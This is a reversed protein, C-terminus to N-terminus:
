QRSNDPLQDVNHTSVPPTAAAGQAKPTVAPVAHSPPPPRVKRSATASAADPVPTSPSATPPLSSPASSPSAASAVAESPPAPAPPAAASPVPPPNAPAVPPPAMSVSAAAAPSSAATRDSGRIMLTVGGIIAAVAVVGVVAITAVVGGSARSQAPPPTPPRGGSGTTPRLWPQDTPPPWAGRSPTRGLTMSDMTRVGLGGEAGSGFPAISRAFEAVSPFRLSVDRELSSRIAQELAVPVDPRKEALPPIPNHMIASIQEGLTEFVFPPAGSLLEYMCVGLQWIDSRSDIEKPRSFQEPSMYLPTGLMGRTSTLAKPALSDDSVKSIGFDLVKIRFSGNRGRALYLNSPKLDRHIIGHAHADALGECAQLMYDVVEGIPLPGRTMLLQSLDQGELYELVMFPVGDDLTGFDIVRAVHESDLRAAARAENLFRQLVEPNKGTETLLLKVAVRKCLLEHQAAYVAGMGGRGLLREIKYKGALVVGPQLEDFSASEVM